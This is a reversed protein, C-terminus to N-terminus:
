RRNSTNSTNSRLLALGQYYDDDNHLVDLKRPPPAPVRSAPAGPSGTNTSGAPAPAETRAFMWPSTTALQALAQAETLQGESAAILESAKSFALERLAPDTTGDSGRAFRLDGEAVANAFRLERAARASEEARLRKAEDLERALNQQKEEAVRLREQEREAETLAALRQEEAVRAKEAAIAEARAQEIRQDLDAQLRTREAALLAEIDVPQPQPQPVPNPVPERAGDQATAPTEPTEPTEDETPM